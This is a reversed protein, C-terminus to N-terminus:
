GLGDPDLLLVLVDCQVLHPEDVVQAVHVDDLSALHPHAPAPNPADQLQGVHGAAVCEALEMALLALERVLALVIALIPGDLDRGFDLSVEEAV